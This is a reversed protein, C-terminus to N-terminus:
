LALCAPRGGNRSASFAMVQLSYLNKGEGFRWYCRVEVAQPSATLSQLMGIVGTILLSVAEDAMTRPADRGFAGRLSGADAKAPNPVSRTSVTM